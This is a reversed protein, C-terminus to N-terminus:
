HNIRKKGTPPEELLAQYYKQRSQEAARRSKALAAEARDAEADKKEVEDLKATLEDVQEDSLGLVKRNKSTYECFERGRKITEKIDESQFAEEYRDFLAFFEAVIKKIKKSVAMSITKVGAGNM